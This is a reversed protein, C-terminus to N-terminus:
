FGLDIALFPGSLTADLAFDGEEYDFALHRWGAAVAVRDTVAFPVRGVAEWQLDSGVGVGGVDGGAELRWRQGLRLNARAGILPDAWREGREVSVAGRLSLATDISWYRLGALADVSWRETRAVRWFGALSALVGEVDLDGSVSAASASEGVDLVTVDALM